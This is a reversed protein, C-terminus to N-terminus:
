VLVKEPKFSLRGDGGAEARALGLVRSGAALVVLSGERIGVPLTRVGPPHLTAGSCVSKVAGEGVEVRPLFSLAEEIGIVAEALRGRASLAELEELSVARDISYGGVGTRLLFSMYAGCGIREGIDHCLTRIYTGASCWVDLLARPRGGGGYWRVMDMEYIKVTRARRDVVKGMRALEYLKKGQHRVASTMPPIQSIEGTFSTLVSAVLGQSFGSPIEREELEGFADGTSSSAGFTIEARYRKDHDLYEILRTARGCCALLVGAAGPDLTGTHGVRKIGSLRRIHSVVDHSTMGPPKLVNLLGDM